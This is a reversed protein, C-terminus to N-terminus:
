ENRQDDEDDETRESSCYDPLHFHNKIIKKPFQAATVATIKVLPQFLLMMLLTVLPSMRGNWQRTM